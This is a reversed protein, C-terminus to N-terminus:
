TGQYESNAIGKQTHTRLAFNISLSKYVPLWGIAYTWHIYGDSNNTNGTYISTYFSFTQAVSDHKVPGTKKAAGLIYGSSLSFFVRIFEFFKM